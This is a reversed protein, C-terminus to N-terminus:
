KRYKPFIADFSRLLMEIESNRILPNLFDEEQHDKRAKKPFAERARRFDSESGYESFDDAAIPIAKDIGCGHCDMVGVLIAQRTRLQYHLASSELRSKAERGKRQTGSFGLDALLKSKAESISGNRYAANLVEAFALFIPRTEEIDFDKLDGYQAAHAFIEIRWFIDPELEPSLYGEEGREFVRSFGDEDCLLNAVDELTLPYQGDKKRGAM